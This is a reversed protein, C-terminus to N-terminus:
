RTLRDGLTRCTVCLLQCLMQGILFRDIGILHLQEICNATWLELLHGKDNRSATSQGMLVGRDELRDAHEVRRQMAARSRRQQLLKAERLARQLRGIAGTCM